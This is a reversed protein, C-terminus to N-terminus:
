LRFRKKVVVGNIDVVAIYYGSALSIGTHNWKVVSSGTLQVVHRDILQGRLDFISLTGVSSLAAPLNIRLQNKTSQLHQKTTHLSQVIPSDGLTDVLITDLPITTVIASTDYTTSFVVLNALSDIQIFLSDTTTEANYTTVISDTDVTIVTDKKVTTDKSIRHTTDRKVTTDIVVPLYSTLDVVDIWSTGGATLSYLFNSTSDIQFGKSGEIFLAKLEIAEPNTIDYIRTSYLGGGICLLGKYPLIFNGKGDLTDVPTFNNLDDSHKYVYTNTATTVFTYNETAHFNLAKDFPLVFENEPLKEILPFEWSHIYQASLTFLNKNTIGNFDGANLIKFSNIIEPSSTGTFATVHFSAASNSRTDTIYMTDTAKWLIKEIAAPFTTSFKEVPTSPTTVDYILLNASDTFYLTNGAKKMPLVDDSNSSPRPITAITTVGDDGKNLEGTVDIIVLADDDIMQNGYVIGNEVAGISRLYTIKNGGDEYLQFRANFAPNEDGIITDCQNDAATTIGILLLLTLVTKM